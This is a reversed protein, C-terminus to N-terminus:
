AKHRISDYVLKIDNKEIGKILFLVVPYIIAGLIIVLYFNIFSKLYWVAGGMVSAAILAKVIKKFVYALDFNVIKYSYYTRFTVLFLTSIIMSISAGIFTYRPILILNSIINIVMAFGMLVTNVKERDCANLVTGAPFDLFIFLLNSILIQLAFVSPLFSPGFFRIMIEKALVAVGFIIPLCIISLYILAIEFTKKLSEKSSIYFFSLAPFLAAMFAMPIFQFATVARYPLGYLGAAKEGALNFLLVSDAYSYVKLFVGAIAFPFSIKFLFKLIDRNYNLKPYINYKKVLITLAFLFRWLSGILLAIILIKLNNKNILIGAAGIIFTAIQCVVVSISEYKLNQFGRLVCEISLNFSDLSMLFASIYILGKTLPPYNQFYTILFIIVLTLFSLPLKIGLINSFFDQAKEKNKATERILVKEFGIDIFIGFISTFSLAYTYIGLNSPGIIRSIIAVYFFAIIKQLINALTFFSTNKAIQKSSLEM